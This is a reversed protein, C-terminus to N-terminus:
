TWMEDFVSRPLRTRKQDDLVIGYKERLRAATQLPTEAASRREIAERMAIVIADEISVGEIQAFQRTLAEAEPNDLNIAM